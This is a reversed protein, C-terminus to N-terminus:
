WLRNFSKTKWRRSAWRVNGGTLRRYISEDQPNHGIREVICGVTCIPSDIKWDPKMDQWKVGDIGPSAQRKLAYFSDRLLGVNLHHLLATFREQKRKRAAQRVGHLGQSVRQGSQTPRMHSQVINEKTQARGEGAEASAQAERNSQNVPVVACDSKEPVHMDATQNIAKASRDQEK